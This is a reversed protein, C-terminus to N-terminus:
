IKASPKKFKQTIYYIDLISLMKNNQNAQPDDLNLSLLPEYMFQLKGMVLHSSAMNIPAGRKIPDYAVQYGCLCM